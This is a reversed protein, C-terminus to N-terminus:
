INILVLWDLLIVVLYMLLLNLMNVWWWSPEKFLKKLCIKKKELNITLDWLESKKDLPLLEQFCEELLSFDQNIQLQCWKQSMCSWLDKLIVIKCLNVFLIMLLVRMYIALETNKHLKLVLYIFLWWKLFLILLM